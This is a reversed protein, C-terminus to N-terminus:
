NKNVHKVRRRLNLHFEDDKLKDYDRDAKNLYHANYEDLNAFWVGDEYIEGTDEDRMVDEKTKGRTDKVRDAM